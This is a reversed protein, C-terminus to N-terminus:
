EHGGRMLVRRQEAGAEFKLRVEEEAGTNMKLTPYSTYGGGSASFSGMEQQHPLSNVYGGGGVGKDQVEVEESISQHSSLM